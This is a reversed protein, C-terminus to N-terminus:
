LQPKVVEEAFLLGEADQVVSFHCSWEAAEFNESVPLKPVWKREFNSNFVKIPNGKQDLFELVLEADVMCNLTSNEDIGELLSYDLAFEVDIPFILDRVRRKDSWQYYDSIAVERSMNVENNLLDVLGVNLETVKRLDETTAVTVTARLYYADLKEDKPIVRQEDKSCSSACVFLAVAAFFVSLFRFRRM